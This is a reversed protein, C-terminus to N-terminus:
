VQDADERMRLDEQERLHKLHAEIVKTLTMSHRQAYKFAWEVLVADIKM